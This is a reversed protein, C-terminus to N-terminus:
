QTSLKQHYEHWIFQGLGILHLLPEILNDEVFWARFSNDATRLKLESRVFGSRSKCDSLHNSLQPIEWEMLFLGLTLFATISTCETKPIWDM